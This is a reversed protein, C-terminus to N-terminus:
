GEEKTEVAPTPGARLAARVAKILNDAWYCNDPGDLAIEIKRLAARAEDRERVIPALDGQHEAIIFQLREVEGLLMEVDHALEATEMWSSMEGQRARARMAEIDIRM